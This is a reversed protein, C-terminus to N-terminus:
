TFAKWSQLIRMYNAREYVNPDPCCDCNMCGRLQDLSEYEHAEHGAATWTFHEYLGSWYAGFTLAFLLEELPLKWVFVGSLAELNWVREIYGPASLESGGVLVVYLALFVVGSILTRTKLDPRCAVAAAGGGALALIAPYIPNWGSLSYLPLFILAPAAQAWRHFRHRSHRREVTDIPVLTRARTLADYLIAGIGGIAFSFVLSEIDFGTRTALDFLSPPNWYEPVFMPETLGFPATLVSM